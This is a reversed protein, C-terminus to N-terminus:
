VVSKRDPLGALRGRSKKMFESVPDPETEPIELGLLEAATFEPRFRSKEHENLMAELADIQSQDPHSRGEEARILADIETYRANWRSKHVEPLNEEILKRRLPDSVRARHSGNSTM